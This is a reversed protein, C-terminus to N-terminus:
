ESPKRCPNNTEFDNLIAHEMLTSYNKCVDACALSALAALM